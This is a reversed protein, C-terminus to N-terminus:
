AHGSNLFLLVVIYLGDQSPIVGAAVGFQALPTFYPAYPGKGVQCVSLCVTYDRLM